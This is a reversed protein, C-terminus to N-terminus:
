KKFFFKAINNNNIISIFLLINVTLFFIPSQVYIILSLFYLVLQLYKIVVGLDDIISKPGSM